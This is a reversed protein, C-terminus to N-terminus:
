GGGGVDGGHLAEEVAEHQARQRERGREGCPRDDEDAVDSACVRPQLQVRDLLARADHVLLACRSLQNVRRLVEVSVKAAKVLNDGREEGVLRARAECRRRRGRGAQRDRARDLAVGDGEGVAVPDDVAARQLPAEADALHPEDVVEDCVPVPQEREVLGLLADRQLRRGLHRARRHRADARPRPEALAEARRARLPRRVLRKRGLAAVRVPRRPRRELHLQEAEELVAEPLLVADRDLADDGARPERRHVVEERRAERVLDHRLHVRRDPRRTLELALHDRLVRRGPGRGEALQAAERHLGEGGGKAGLRRASGELPHRESPQVDRAPHRGLVQAQELPRVREEHARKAVLPSERGEELADGDVRHEGLVDPLAAGVEDGEPHEERHLLLLLLHQAGGIGLLGLSAERRQGLEVCNLM